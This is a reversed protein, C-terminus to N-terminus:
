HRIGSPLWETYRCLSGARVTDKWCASSLLLVEVEIWLGNAAVAAPPASFFFVCVCVCTNLWFCSPQKNAAEQASSIIRVTSRYLLRNKQVSDNRERDWKGVREKKKKKKHRQQKKLCSRHPKECHPVANCPATYRKTAQRLSQFSILQQYFLIPNLSQIGM